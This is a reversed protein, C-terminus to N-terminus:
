LLPYEKFGVLVCEAQPTIGFEAQVKEQMTRAINIIDGTSAQGNNVLMNAHQYSVSADGCKLAGKVGVKDLYYAVFIVKKGNNILTVEHDHFNRFFSGCTGANPYRRLRHKIIEVRRGRAFSANLSDTCNLKFTADVLYFDESHLSSYDYGFNFWEPTVTQTTGTKKCIITASTLFSSLLFEFYHINIFVSGGVTGPIGSFDELGILNNGLCYEILDDFRVGAGAKVLAYNDNQETISINKLAPRIVLGEFGDDSILINAGEGLVFIPLGFQGAFALSLQFEDITTPESYYAAKGGTKFWNKDKLSVNTQIYPPVPNTNNIISINKM